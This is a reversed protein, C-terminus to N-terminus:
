EITVRQISTNANFIPFYMLEIKAPNLTYIGSFRPILNISFTYNGGALIECFIVAENNYYERHTELYHTRHREGYSCGGPIPVKIMVYNASKNVKIEVFLKIPKGAELKNNHHEFHTEIEFDNKKEVPNNNWSKEFVSFYIPSFGSKQVIISDNPNLELYYPFTTIEKNIKGSIDLKPKSNISNESLLDPLIAEIINSSEYINNWYGNNHRGEILYNRIKTLIVSYQKNNRYLSYAKLTIQIDNEHISKTNSQSSFYVNGFLTTKQYKELFDLKIEYGLLQKLILLDLKQYLNTDVKSKELEKIYKPFDANINLYHFLKLIRIRDDFSLYGEYAYQIHKEAKSIMNYTYYGEKKADILAEIVHVSIWINDKSDKWWGWLGLPNSRESLLKILNQIEKDQKFEEGHFLRIKKLAILSKIKSAIQENCLYKYNINNQLEKKIESIVNSNASILVTSNPNNNIIKFTTDSDLTKFWGESQEIGTQYIPINRLEGDFFGQENEFYYKLTLSDNQAVVKLTDIIADVCVSHKEFQSVDNIEFNTVIPIADTTYNLVKGIAFTTDGHTLFAPLSLHSILPKYSKILGRSVGLQKKENMGIYFTRWATVDDPFVVEFTVKGESNTKLRPQWFAYDSFNSRIKSSSMSENYFDEDFLSEKTSTLGQLIAGQKLSIKVVPNENDIGYLKADDKNTHIEIKEALNWDFSEIDGNYLHGNIIFISNKPIPFDFVVIYDEPKSQWKLIIEKALITYDKALTDVVCKDDVFILQQKKNKVNDTSYEAAFSEYLSSGSTTKGKDILPIMYEGIVVEPLMGGKYSDTKVEFKWFLVYDNKFIQIQQKEKSFRNDFFELVYSGTDINDFKFSGNEETITSTIFKEGKYLSVKVGDIGDNYMSDFLNGIICKKVDDKTSYHYINSLFILDTRSYYGKNLLKFYENILHTVVLNQRNNIEDKIQLYNQGNKFIKVSDEIVYTSDKYIVLVEYIGANIKIESTQIETYLSTFQKSKYDYFMVALLPSDNENSRNRLLLESDSTYRSRNSIRHYYSPARYNKVGVFDNFNMNQRYTSTSPFRKPLSDSVSIGDINIEVVKNQIHEFVHVVDKDLQCTIEGNVPGIFQFYNRRYNEVFFYRGDNKFYKVNCDNSIKIPLTHNKVLEQEQESFKSDVKTIKVNEIDYNVDISFITKKFDFLELSDIEIMLKDTRIKINNNGSLAPFSYPNNESLWNFYIPKDNLYIMRIKVIEGHDFVFPAFQTLSDISIFDTRYFGNSPLWFKMFENSDRETKDKWFDYYFQSVISESYTKKVDFSNIYMKPVGGSIYNDINPWYHQFKTTLGYATVDINSVAKNKSDTVKLEITAKKGPYVLEPSNVEINLKNKYYNSSFVLEKADGNYIYGVIVHVNDRKKVKLNRTLSKAFGKEILKEGIFIEYKFPIKLENQVSFNLANNNRVGNISIPKEPFNSEVYHTGFDTEVGYTSFFNNNLITCPIEGDYVLSKNGWKDNGYIKAYTTAFLNNKYYTFNISDGQPECYFGHQNHYYNITREKRVLENDSTTLFFKVRYSLDAKPFISDHIFIFNDKQPLLKIQYVGLTDPVFVRNDFYKTTRTSLIQYELKADMLPLDNDDYANIKIKQPVGRYHKSNNSASIDMQNKTLQYEEYNFWAEKRVRNKKDILKITLQRDLKINEIDSLAFEFSYAGKSYPEVNAIDKIKTNSQYLVAKLTETKQHGNLRSIFAKVKVTDGIKYLPKNTAMYGYYETYNLETDEFDILRECKSKNFFCALQLRKHKLIQLTGCTEGYEKTIYVDFPIRVISKLPKLIKYDPIRSYAYYSFQSFRPNDRKRELNFFNVHQNFEVTLVGEQNSKKDIYTKTKKDYKLTKGNIKVKADSVIEGKVDSVMISLDTFNNVAYVVVNSVSKTRINQSYNDFNVLLYHGVPLDVQSEINKPFSDIPTHLLSIWDLKMKENVDIFIQKAEKNTLKYVYTNKSSKSSNLLDQGFLINQAFFIILIFFISKNFYKM